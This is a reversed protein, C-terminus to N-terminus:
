TTVPKFNDQIPFLATDEPRLHHRVPEDMTGAHNATMGTVTCVEYNWSKITFGTVEVGRAKMAQEILLSVDFINIEVHAKILM